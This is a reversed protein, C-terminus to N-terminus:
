NLSKKKKIIIPILVILLIVLLISVFFETSFPKNLNKGFYVLSITEPLTGLITAFIFDRYKIRSIGAVFSLVDLPFVFSLRLILIIKFGHKETNINIKKNKLVKRKIFNNNLIKNLCTKGIIKSIHFAFTSSLFIGIICLLIALKIEFLKGAIVAFINYPFILIVTRIVFLLLFILPAISDQKKTFEEIKSIIENVDLITEFDLKIYLMIVTILIIIPIIAIFFKKIKM